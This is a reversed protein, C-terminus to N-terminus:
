RASRLPGRSASAEWYLRIDAHAVFGREIGAIWGRNGPDALFQNATQAVWGNSTFAGVAGGLGPRKCKQQPQRAANQRTERCAGGRSTEGVQASLSVPRLKQGAYVRRNLAAHDEPPHLHRLGWPAEAQPPGRADASWRRGTRFPRRRADPTRREGHFPRRPGDFGTRAANPARLTGDFADRAAHFARPGDHFLRRPGHFARRPGDIMNKKAGLSTAGRDRRHEHCNM